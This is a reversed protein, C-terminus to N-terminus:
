LQKNEWEDMNALHMQEWVGIIIIKSYPVFM